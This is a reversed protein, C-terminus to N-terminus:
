QRAALVQRPIKSALALTNRRARRSRFKMTLINIPITTTTIRTSTTMLIHIDRAMMTLISMHILILILISMATTRVMTTMHTSM